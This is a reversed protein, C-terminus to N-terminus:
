YVGHSSHFDLFIWIVKEKERDTFSNKYIYEEAQDLIFNCEAETDDELCNDKLFKHYKFEFTPFVQKLYENVRTELKM